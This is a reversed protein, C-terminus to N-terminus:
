VAGLDEAHGGGGTGGEPAVEEIQGVEATSYWENPAIGPLRLLEQQGNKGYCRGSGMSLRIITSGTVSDNADDITARNKDYERNPPTQVYGGQSPLDRYIRIDEFSM